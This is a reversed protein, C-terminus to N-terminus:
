HAGRLDNLSYGIDGRLYWGGSSAMPTEIPLPDPAPIVIPDLDAALASTASLAAVATGIISLRSFKVM